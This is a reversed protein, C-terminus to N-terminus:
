NLEMNITAELRKAAELALKVFQPYDKISSYRMKSSVDYESSSSTRPLVQHILFVESLKNGYGCIAIEYLEGDLSMYNHNYQKFTQTESIKTQQSM